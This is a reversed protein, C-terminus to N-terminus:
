HVASIRSGRNRYCLLLPMIFRSLFMGLVDNRVCDLLICSAVFPSLKEFIARGNRDQVSQNEMLGLAVKLINGGFHAPVPANMFSAQVFDFPQELTRCYHNFAHTLYSQLQRSDLLMRLDSKRSQAIKCSDYIETYLKHGQEYVLNAQQSTPIRLV